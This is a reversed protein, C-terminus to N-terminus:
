SITLTGYANSRWARVRAVHPSQIHGRADLCMVGAVQNAAPPTRCVPCVPLSEFIAGPRAAALEDAFLSRLTVAMRTAEDTTM